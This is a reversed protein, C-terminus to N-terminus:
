SVAKYDNNIHYEITDASFDQGNPWCIGAFNIKVQQIYEKNKLQSFIGKEVYPSVDFMGETGNSLKTKFKYGECYEIDIVKLM